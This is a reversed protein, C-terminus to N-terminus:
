YANLLYNRTRSPSGSEALLYAVKQNAQTHITHKSKIKGGLKKSQM